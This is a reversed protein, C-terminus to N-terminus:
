GTTVDPPTMAALTQEHAHDRAQMVQEHIRDATSQNAEHHKQLVDALNAMHQDVAKMHLDLSKALRAELADVYSRFNEADVKAQANAMSATAAIEAKQLQVQDSQTSRQTQAQEQLQTKMLDSKNKDALPQLQQIMQQAQALQAQLQQPNPQASPPQLAPPLARQAADALEPANPFDMLRIMPPTLAAAIEPPLGTIMEGLIQLSEQRKTAFGKGVDVTVAYRGAGPDFFKKIGTMVRQSEPDLQAGQPLVMVQQAQQDIGLTHLVRGPRDYYKPIVEVLQEGAYVLARHINDPFNSTAIEGSQQLYRIGRGSIRQPPNTAEWLGTTANIAEESKSLIMTMAQIPPETAQRQPPNVPQGNLSTPTYPLYSQNTTNAEQWLTKYTDIQGEAVVWPAKPALAVTEVAASYMYNVMRQADMGEQIVGRLITQGDVNLEEGLVPILPIHSGPWEFTDLEEVANIVSMRVRPKQITRTRAAAIGSPIEGSPVIVNNPLLAIIIEEFEVRWYEAVRVTKETKWQAFDGIASFEELSAYDASKFRRKFEDHSMDETVFMFMADSRTPKKAHPDCYVTLSNQIRELVLDQDFVSADRCTEDVHCPVPRIRFWGLGAEIAGEAAWEIPAEDRADVQIKRIIGEYIDAIDRSAGSGNPIVQIAFNATRIANSIQRVPQSLRDITLCPRPPRAPQGQIAPGGQREIRIESPWQDGARFKKAELMSTRTGSEAEQCQQWRERAEKVIDFTEAPQEDASAVDSASEDRIRLAVSRSDDAPRKRRAM